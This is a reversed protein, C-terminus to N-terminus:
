ASYGPSRISAPNTGPRRPAGASAAACSAGWTCAQRDSVAELLVDVLRLASAAPM